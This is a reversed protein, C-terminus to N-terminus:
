KKKAGTLKYKRHSTMWNQISDPVCDNQHFSWNEDCIKDNREIIKIGSKTQIAKFYFRRAKHDGMPDTSVYETLITDKKITYFGFPGYRFQEEGNKCIWHDLLAMNEANSGYRFTGNEFFNLTIIAEPWNDLYVSDSTKYYYGKTPLNSYNPSYGETYYELSDYHLICGQLLLISIIILYIKM